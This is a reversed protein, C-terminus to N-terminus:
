NQKKSNTEIAVGQGGEVVFPLKTRSGKVLPCLLYSLLPSFLILYFLALKKKSLYLLSLLRTEFKSIEYSLFSPLNRRDKRKEFSVRDKREM